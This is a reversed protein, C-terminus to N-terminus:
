VGSVKLLERGERASRAGLYQGLPLAVSLAAGRAIASMRRVPEGAALRLHLPLTSAVARALAASTPVTSLGFLTQLRQHVVYTRRLEYGVSRDHSHWVVADPEFAIRHGSQLVELAWELDEAIRTARFPHARWVAMRVCSCVNDFICAVHRERPRLAEFQAHSLPGVVRRETQSAAWRSLYHATIRSADPWPQQRAYAGAVRDDHLLPAVLSALWTTSAPVADQVMLVAFDTAVQSLAFNRTVGHNFAGRDVRLVQAGYAELTSLTADTSGSDVAIIVPRPCAEQGVLADLVRALLTGGNLTPIVVSVAPIQSAGM